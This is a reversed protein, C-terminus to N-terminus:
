NGAGFTIPPVLVWLKALRGWAECRQSQADEQEMKQRERAEKTQDEVLANKLLEDVWEQLSKEEREDSRFSLTRATEDGEEQVGERVRRKEKSELETTEPLTGLCRGEQRPPTAATGRSRLSAHNGTTSSWPVRRRPQRFWTECPSIEPSRTLSQGRDLHQGNSAAQSLLQSMTCVLPIHDCVESVKEESQGALEATLAAARRVQQAVKNARCCKM